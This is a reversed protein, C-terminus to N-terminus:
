VSIVVDMSFCDHGDADTYYDGSSDQLYFIIMGRPFESGDVELPETDVLSVPIRHEVKEHTYVLDYDATVDSIFGTDWTGCHGITNLCLIKNCCKM